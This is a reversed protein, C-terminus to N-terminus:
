SECHSTSLLSSAAWFGHFWFSDVVVMFFSDSFCQKEKEDHQHNDM